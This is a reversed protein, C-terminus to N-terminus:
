KTLKKLYTNLLSNIIFSRQGRPITNYFNLLEKPFRVSVQKKGVGGYEVIKLKGNKYEELAVRVVQSFSTYKFDGGVWKARLTNKIKVNLEPDILLTLHIGKDENIIEKNSLNPKKIERM